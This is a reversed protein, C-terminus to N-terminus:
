LRSGYVNKLALAIQKASSGRKKLNDVFASVEEGLTTDKQSLTSVTSDIERTYENDVVGKVNAFSEGFQNKMAVAMKEPSLGREALTNAFEQAREQTSPQRETKSNQQRAQPQESVTQKRQPQTNAYRKRLSELVIAEEQENKPDYSEIESLVQAREAEPVFGLVVSKIAYATKSMAPQKPKQTPAGDIVSRNVSPQEQTATQRFVAKGGSREYLSDFMEKEKDDLGLSENKKALSTFVIKDAESMAKATKDQLAGGRDTLYANYAAKDQRGFMGDAFKQGYVHSVVMHQQPADLTETIQQGNQDAMVMQIIQGGNGDPAWTATQLGAFRPDAKKFYEVQNQSLFNKGRVGGGEYAARIIQGVVSKAAQDRQQRQKDEEDRLKLIEQYQLDADRVKVSNLVDEWDNQRLAQSQGFQDVQARRQQEQGQMQTSTDFQRRQEAQQQQTLGTGIDFRRASENAGQQNFAMEAKRNQQDLSMGIRARNDAMSAQQAQQALSQAQLAIQADRQQQEKRANDGEFAGAAIGLGAM